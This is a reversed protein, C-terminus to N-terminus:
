GRCEHEKAEDIQEHEPEEAPQCEERPAIGRLVHLDQDQPVLNRDQATLDGRGFGSQASRATIVASARGAGLTVETRHPGSLRERLRPGRDLPRWLDVQVQMAHGGLIDGHDEDAPILSTASAGAREIRLANM